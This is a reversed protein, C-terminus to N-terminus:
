DGVRREISPTFSADGRITAFAKKIDKKSNIDKLILKREENQHKGFAKALESLEIRLNIMDTMLEKMTNHIDIFSDLPEINSCIVMTKGIKKAILTDGPEWGFEKKFKAPITVTGNNLLLIKKEEAIM